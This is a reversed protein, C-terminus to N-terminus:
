IPPLIQLKPVKAIKIDGRVRYGDAAKDMQKYIWRGERDSRAYIMVSEDSSKLRLAVEALLNVIAQNKANLAALPLVVEDLFGTKIAVSSDEVKPQSARAKKLEQKLDMVLANAPYYTEVQELTRAAANLRGENLAVRILQAYKLLIAQLGARAQENDPNLILVSHFKDYANAHEPTTYQGQKFTKMAQQLLIDELTPPKPQPTPEPTPAPISIQAVPEPEPARKLLACSALTFALLILAARTLLQALFM